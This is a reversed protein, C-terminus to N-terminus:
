TRHPYNMHKRLWPLGRKTFRHLKLIFYWHTTIGRHHKSTDTISKTISFCCIAQLKLHERVQVRYNESEITALIIGVRVIKRAILRATFDLYVM